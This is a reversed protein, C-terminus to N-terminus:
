MGPMSLDPHARYEAQRLPGSNVVLCPQSKQILQNCLSVANHKTLLGTQVRYFARGNVRAHEVFLDRDALIDPHLNLFRKWAELAREHTSLAALQIRFAGAQPHSDHAQVKSSQPETAIRAREPGPKRAALIRKLRPSLKLDEPKKDSRPVKISTGAQLNGTQAGNSVLLKALDSNGNRLAWDLPTIGERTRINVEAGKGILLRAVNTHGKYAAIHLPTSGKKVRANIEAGSAILKKAMTENGYFAMWHLATENQQGRQHVDSGSELFQAMYTSNGTRASELLSGASAPAILLYAAMLVPNLHKM